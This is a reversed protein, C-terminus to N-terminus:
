GMNRIINIISSYTISSAPPFLSLPPPPPLCQRSRVIQTSIPKLTGEGASENAPQTPQDRAVKGHRWAYGACHRAGWRKEERGGRRRGAEGM